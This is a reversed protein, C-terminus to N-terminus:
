SNLLMPLPLEGCENLSILGLSNVSWGGSSADAQLLFLVSNILVRLAFRAIQDDLFIRKVGLGFAIKGSHGRFTIAVM